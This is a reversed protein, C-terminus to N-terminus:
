PSPCTGALLCCRQADAQPLRVWRPGASCGTRTSPCDVSHCAGGTIPGRAGWANRGRRRWRVPIVWVDLEGPSGRANFTGRETNHATGGTDGGDSGSPRQQEAEQQGRHAPQRRKPQPQPQPVAQLLVFHQPLARLLSLAVRLPVWALQPPSGGALLRRAPLDQLSYQLPPPAADSGQGPGAASATGSSGAGAEAPRGAQQVDGGATGSAAESSSSISSSGGDEAKTSPQENRRRGGLAAARERVERTLQRQESLSSVLRQLPGFPNPLASRRGSSGCSSGAQVAAMQKHAPLWHAPSGPHLATLKCACRQVSM